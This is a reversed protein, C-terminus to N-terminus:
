HSLRDKVPQGAAPRAPAVWSPALPVSRVPKWDEDALYVFPVPLPAPHPTSRFDSRAFDRLLSPVPERETFYAPAVGPARIAFLTSFGAIMDSDDFQGLTAMKPNFRTIRSGHDGHIIIVTNNGAPSREVARLLGAVKLATCRAQEDYASRRVPIASDSTLTEWRRWPLYTCDSRTVYPHHPAILHAFIADGPQLSKVREDLANIAELSAVASSARSSGTYSPAGLGLRRLAKALGDWNDMALGFLGSLTLFKSTILAARDTVDLPAALTPRLGSSDYSVCEYFEAGTCYDAFDSQFITLKYGRDVLSQLHETSGIIVGDRTAAKGLRTGYNLIDPVANVTNFHRSYAGGYVAFGHALYFNRLEDSLRQGEPGESRLGELGIHEDFIIHVIAPKGAAAAAPREPQAGKEVSIWEHAGGLGLAKSALVVAGIVAMAPLFSFRRWWSALGIAVGLACALLFSDTNLDVFLLALLGELFARGWQRQAVYFVALAAAIGLMGATVIGVEPRLLPYDNYNLFNALSACLIAAGGAFAIALERGPEKRLAAKVCEGQFAHHFGAAFKDRVARLLAM